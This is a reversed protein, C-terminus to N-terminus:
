VNIKSVVQKQFFLVCDTMSFVILICYIYKLNNPPLKRIRPASEILSAWFSETTELQVSKNGEARILNVQKYKEWLPSVQEPASCCWFLCWFINQHLKVFVKYPNFSINLQQKKTPPVESSFKTLKPATLRVCSMSSHCCRLNKWGAVGLSPCGWKQGLHPPGPPVSGSLSWSWVIVVSRPWQTTRFNWYWSGPGSNKKSSWVVIDNHPGSIEPGCLWTPSINCNPDPGSVGAFGSTQLEGTQLCIKYVSVWDLRNGLCCFRGQGEPSSKVEGPFTMGGSYPRRPWFSLDIFFPLSSLFFFSSSSSLFVFFHVDVLTLQHSEKGPALHHMKYTWHRRIQLNYFYGSNYLTGESPIVM